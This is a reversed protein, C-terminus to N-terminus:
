VTAHLWAAWAATRSHTGRGVLMCDCHSSAGPELASLLGESNLNARTEPVFSVEARGESRESARARIHERLIDNLTVLITFDRLKLYAMIYAISTRLVVMAIGLLCVFAAYVMAARPVEVRVDLTLTTLIWM